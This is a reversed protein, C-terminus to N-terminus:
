AVAGNDHVLPVMKIALDGDELAVIRGDEDCGSAEAAEKSIEIYKNIM